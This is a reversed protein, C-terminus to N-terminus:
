CYIINLEPPADGYFAMVKSSYPFVFVQKNCQLSFSSYKKNQRPRNIKTYKKYM